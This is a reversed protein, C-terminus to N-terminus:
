QIVRLLQWRDFGLTTYDLFCTVIDMEQWEPIKLHGACMSNQNQDREKESAASMWSCVRPQQGDDAALTADALCCM